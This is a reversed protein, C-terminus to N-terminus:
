RWLLTIWGGKVGIIQYICFKTKTLKTWGNDSLGDNKKTRVISVFCVAGYSVSVGFLCKQPIERM